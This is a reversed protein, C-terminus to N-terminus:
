AHVPPGIVPQAVASASLGIAPTSGGTFAVTFVMRVYRRLGSRNIELFRSTNVATIQTIAVSPNAADAAVDAWASGNASDQLKADVAITTPTGTSAGSKVEILLSDFDEADLSSGELSFAAAAVQNNPRLLNKITALGGINLQKGM